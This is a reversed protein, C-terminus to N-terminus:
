SRPSTCTVGQPGTQGRLTAHEKRVSHSIACYRNCRRMRARLPDSSEWFRRLDGAGQLQVGPFAPNFCLRAVGELNVMINREYSNCIHEKTGTLARWGLRALANKPVSRLYMQVQELWLPNIHLGYKGDCARIIRALEKDDRITNKQFFRDQFWWTPPGFSPQLFNLKLKDAGIDNLVFDYFADLERYNRECVVAMAYIRPGGGHRQRSELLLKLAGVAKDYSGVVGRTEDHVERRPSNLSITIESPGREVLRDAAAANLVMTGNTVAFCRLGNERCTDTVAYFRDPDLLLEGGCIVV